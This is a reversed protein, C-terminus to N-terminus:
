SSELMIGMLASVPRLLDVEERSMTGANIQPLIGTEDFVVRAIHALYELTSNFGLVQLADRAAQYRFEPREGLTFLAEKCGLTQAQRVSVM